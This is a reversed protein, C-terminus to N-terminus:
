SPQDCRDVGGHGYKALWDQVRGHKEVSTDVMMVNDWQDSELGPLDFPILQHRDPSRWM